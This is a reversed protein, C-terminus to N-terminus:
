AKKKLLVAPAGGWIENAGIHTHPNVVSHPLLISGDEITTGGFVTCGVGLTVNDGIRIKYDSLKSGVMIHPTLLCHFGLICNAGIEVLPADLITAAGPYTNHGLRAGLLRYWVRTFAPPILPVNVLPGFNILYLGIHLFHVIEEWSGEEKPGETLPFAITILRYSFVSYALTLAFFTLFVGATFEFQGYLLHHLSYVSYGALLLMATEM